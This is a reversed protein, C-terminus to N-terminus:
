RFGMPTPVLEVRSFGSSTDQLTQEVTKYYSDADLGTTTDTQVLGEVLAQDLDARAFFISVPTRPAPPTDHRARDAFDDLTRILDAVAGTTRRDLEDPTLGLQHRVRTRGRLEPRTFVIAEDVKDDATVDRCAINFWTLADDLRGQTECFEAILGAPGALLRAHTLRALESDIEDDRGLLLLM